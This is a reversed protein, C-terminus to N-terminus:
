RRSVAVAILAALAFVLAAVAAAVPRTNWTQSEIDLRLQEGLRPQWTQTRGPLSAEVRVQVRDGLADPDLRYGTEGVAQALAPDSLGALGKSLDVLGTFRTVTRAFTRRRSVAFERFPGDAGSLEAAIRGAGEPEAFPKTLRVWTLGDPERAPGTVTWGSERLDDLRLETAPDGLERVAEDDLGIAARVLGSGDSRVDIAATLTIECGTTALM